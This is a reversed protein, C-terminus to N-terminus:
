TNRGLFGKLFSVAKEEPIDKTDVLLEWRELDSVELRAAGTDDNKSESYAIRCVSM